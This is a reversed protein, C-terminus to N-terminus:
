SWYVTIVTSVDPFRPLTLLILPRDEKLRVPVSDDPDILVPLIVEVDIDALPLTEEEVSLVEPSAVRFLVEIVFLAVTPPENPTVPLVERLVTDVEPKAVSLLVEIVFLAVTPPVKPTVPVEVKPARLWVPVAVIFVEPEAAVVSPLESAAEVVVILAPSLVIDIVIPTVLIEDPLGVM